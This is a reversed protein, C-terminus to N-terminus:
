SRRERQQRPGQQGVDRGNRNEVVTEDQNGQRGDGDDRMEEVETTM